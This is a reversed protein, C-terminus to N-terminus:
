PAIRRVAPEPAVPMDSVLTAEGQTIRRFQPSVGAVSGVRRRTQRFSDSENRDVKRLVLEGYPVGFLYLPGKYGTRTKHLEARYVVDGIGGPTVTGGKRTPKHHQDTETSQAQGLRASM